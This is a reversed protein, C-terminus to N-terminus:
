SLLWSMRQVYARQDLQSKVRDWLTPYHFHPCHDADCAAMLLHKHCLRVSLHTRRVPIEKSVKKMCHNGTLISCKGYSHCIFPVSVSAPYGWVPNM